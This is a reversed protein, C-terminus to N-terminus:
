TTDNEGEYIIPSFLHQNISPQPDYKNRVMQNHKRCKKRFDYIQDLKWYLPIFQPGTQNDYYCDAVKIGWIKCLDLKRLNTHYPIKWNCIMFLMIEERQYGADVLKEIAEKIEFQQDFKLDWAFRISRYWKGNKNSFAGFRSEYLIRAIEETLFRFDIGCLMEYYVVKDNVRIEGLKKLIDLAEPKCLLNMDMIGVKNRKIEPVGFLKIETPEYCYPHNWPCGESIRIWQFEGKVKDYPGLNYNVKVPSLRKQIEPSM